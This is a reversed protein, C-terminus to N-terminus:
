KMGQEIFLPAYKKDSGKIHTTLWDSLFKMMRTSTNKNGQEFGDMFELVRQVFRAHEKRHKPADPYGFEDFCSEEFSFHVDIYSVLGDAIAHFADEAPNGEIAEALENIMDFLQQHQQDIEKINVSYRNDWEIFAMGFWKSAQSQRQATGRALKRHTWEM